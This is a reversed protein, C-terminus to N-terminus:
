KKGKVTYSSTNIVVRRNHARGEATGNDDIPQTEGYGESSLHDADVGHAILYDKVAKARDKSLKLNSADNGQNDTHGEISAKVEPHAMLLKALEDLEAKSEEKLVASGTNFFIKESAKKILALDAASLACGKLAVSGAVDPCEDESDMVGDGDRDPCGNLTGKVTPCKDKADTVGDGDSDKDELPCGQKEILGAIDPCEDYKDAVGDKDRDPCGKLTGFENPCDDVADVIGDGDSDPSNAIALSAGNIYYYARQNDNEKKEERTHMSKSSGEFAGIVVFKENGEATFEGTITTWGNEDTVFDNSLVQPQYGLAANNKEEIKEKSFYAGLGQVARGSKDALNVNMTFTYTQGAKLEETLEGQLYEAYKTYGKETTWELNQISQALSIREDEYYATFGAYNGNFEQEGMYNKPVGLQCACANSSFLDVSGGNADSWGDALHIQSKSVVKRNAALDPNKILNQSFATSMCGFIGLILVNKM